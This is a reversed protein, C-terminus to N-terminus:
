GPIWGEVRAATREPATLDPEAYVHQEDPPWHRQFDDLFAPWDSALRHVEFHRPPLSFGHDIGALTPSDEALWEM